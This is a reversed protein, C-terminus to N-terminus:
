PQKKDVGHEALFKLTEAIVYDTIEMHGRDTSHAYRHPAKAKELAQVMANAQSV